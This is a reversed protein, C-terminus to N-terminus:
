KKDYGSSDTGALFGSLDALLAEEIKAKRDEEVWERMQQGKDSANGTTAQFPDHVATRNWFNRVVKWLSYGVHFLDKAGSSLFLISVGVWLLVGTVQPHPAAMAILAFMAALKNVGHAAYEPLGIKKTGDFRVSFAVIMMQIFFYLSLVFLGNTTQPDDVVMILGFLLGGATTLVALVGSLAIVLGSNMKRM